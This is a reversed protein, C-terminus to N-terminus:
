LDVRRRFFAVVGGLGAAFVTWAPPLFPIEGSDDSLMIGDITVSDQVEEQTVSKVTIVVMIEESWSDANGTAEIVMLHYTM